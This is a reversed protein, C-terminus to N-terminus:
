REEVSAKALAEVSLRGFAEHLREACAARVADSEISDLLGAVYGYALMPLAKARSLGRSQLYFIEEENLRGVTSGHSAKVDDAEIILMPKSDAEAVRSLLLNNNLQESNAKVAGHRIRVEGAFVARSTGDLINKQIQKTHSGGTKHDIWSTCDLHQTGSIVGLGLTEATIGPSLVDLRLNQRSLAAGLSLTWQRLTAQDGPELQLRAIHTANLSENQLRIWEVNSAAGTKVAGVVNTFYHTAIAGASEELVTVKSRAGIDVHFRINSMVDPGAEASTYFLVHLPRPAVRDAPVKLAFGRSLYAANLADFADAFDATTEAPAVAIFDGFASLEDLDSLTKSLVGNIFVVSTTGVIKLDAVRHLTDHSPLIEDVATSRFTAEGLTKVSTYKWSEDRRTPLGKEAFHSAGRARLANVAPTSAPLQPQGNLLSM